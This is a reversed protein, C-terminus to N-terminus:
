NFLLPSLPCGQKTGSRLPFPKRKEGNIVNATPKDFIAKIINLSTGEIGVKQLTKIMFLHQIKNFAKEADISLIMHNKEKLKNIHHIVNISKRINFFGQMGPIFGVKDHHIIRKIHQQIRNALIKNLIKADRNMLSIPRYNEKKTVDKEPKPILTITAKYFSNPLRRGEAINQFLKLLIPTLEERFTQYFEGTFGGPGPSKKTPLNKIVTEIETSTISRNM